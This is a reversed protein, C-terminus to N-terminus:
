PNIATITINVSHQLYSTTSVPTTLRFYVVQSGGSSVGNVLTYQHDEILFPTWNAGNTSFEWVVQDSGAISGLNWVNSGDTFSSTSINLDVPGVDIYITQEDDIGSITTDINTEDPLIGFNIAGDSTISIAIVPFLTALNLVGVGVENGQTTDNPYSGDDGSDFVELQVIDNADLAIVMSPNFAGDYTDTTTQNGRLYTGHRGRLLDNGNLDWRVARTLRNGSTDSRSIKVNAMFIYDSTKKVQISISDPVSFSTSNIQRQTEVLTLSTNIDSGAVNQAGLTDSGILTETDSPIEMIFLGSQDNTRAVVSDTDAKGRQIQIELDQNTSTNNLIFMAGVVGYENASDRMYTYSSSQPLNNTALTARSVRQTRSSGSTIRLGVSYIVLYRSIKKLRINTNGAQKEIVSIDTEYETTDWSVSNWTTGGYSGNDSTDSYYSYALSSSDPLKVLMLESITTTLSGAPTGAGTDRTWEVAVKDTASASVIAYGRVFFDANFNNRVYDQGYSGEVPTGNLTVRALFTARNNHTISGRLLYMVLYRGSEGLEFDSDGTQKTYIGDNRFETEFTAKEYVGVSSPINDGTNDRWIGVDGGAAYTKSVDFNDINTYLLQTPFINIAIIVLTVLYRTKKIVLNIM